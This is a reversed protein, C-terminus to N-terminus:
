NKTTNKGQSDATSPTFTYAYIGEVEEGGKSNRLVQELNMAQINVAKQEYLNRHSVKLGLSNAENNKGAIIVRKPTKQATTSCHMGKTSKVGNSM